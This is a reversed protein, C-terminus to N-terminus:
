PHFFARMGNWTYTMAATGDHSCGDMVRFAYNGEEGAEDVSAFYPSDEMRDTRDTDYSYAFDDTGTMVFVFYDGSDRGEAAQWIADDDLSTGCSM